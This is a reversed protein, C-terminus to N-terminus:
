RGVSSGQNVEKTPQYDHGSGDPTTTDALVTEGQAMTGSTVHYRFSDGSGAGEAREHGQAHIVLQDTAVRQRCISCWHELRWREPLLGLPTPRMHLVVTRYSITM